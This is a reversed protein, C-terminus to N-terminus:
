TFGFSFHVQVKKSRDRKRRERDKTFIYNFIKKTLKLKKRKYQIANQISRKNKGIADRKRNNNKETIEKELRM